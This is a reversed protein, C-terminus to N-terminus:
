RTASSACSPPSSPVPPWVALCLASVLLPTGVNRWNACYSGYVLCGLGHATLGIPIPNGFTRFYGPPNDACFILTPWRRDSFKCDSPKFSPHVQMNPLAPISM